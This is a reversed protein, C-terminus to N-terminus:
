VLNNKLLPLIKEIPLGIVNKLSGKLTKVFTKPLNQIGYAGAKDFPDKTAIYNLIDDKSLEHFTVQTKETDIHWHDTQTNYVAFGTIVDHTRASLASLMTFAETEDKPKGLIQNQLVVITDAALIVAPEKEHEAITQAKEKALRKVFDLPAENPKQSEDIDAARQTFALNENKLIEFRRPSQSALILKM